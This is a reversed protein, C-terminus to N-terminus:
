LIHQIRYLKIHIFNQDLPCSFWSKQFCFGL